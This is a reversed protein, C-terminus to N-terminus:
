TTPLTLHTYSVANPETRSLAYVRMGTADNTQCSVLALTLGSATLPRLLRLPVM